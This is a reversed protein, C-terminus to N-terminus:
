RWAFKQYFDKTILKFGECYEKKCDYPKEIVWCDCMKAIKKGCQNCFNGKIVKKSCYQCILTERQGQDQVDLGAKEKDATM